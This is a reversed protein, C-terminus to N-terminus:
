NGVQTIPRVTMGEVIDGVGASVVREGGLLGETVVVDGGSAAGLTVARRSVKGADDVLWVLPDGNPAAAVATLPITVEERAGGITARINAVM